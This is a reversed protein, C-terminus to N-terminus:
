RLIVKVRGKCPRNQREPDRPMVHGCRACIALCVNETQVHSGPIYDRWLYCFWAHPL